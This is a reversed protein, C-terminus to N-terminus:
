ATRLWSAYARAMILDDPHTLKVNWVEGPVTAVPHGQNTVASADDAVEGDASQLCRLILERRFGQPTQVRVLGSRDVAEGLVGNANMRRMADVCPVVPVAAAHGVVADIVRDVLRQSPFPRAGDHILVIEGGTARVGALASDIRRRGGAVVQVSTAFRGVARLVALEEGPRAVVVVEDIRPSRLFPDIAYALVPRGLLSLLVKNGDTGMRRSSGAALVVASASM